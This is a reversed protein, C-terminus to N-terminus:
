ASVIPLFVKEFVIEKLQAVLNMIVKIQELAVANLDNLKKNLEDVQSQLFSKQIELNDIEKELLDKEVKLKKNEETLKEIKEADTLGPFPEEIPEPKPQPIPEPEPIPQPVPPPAPIEEAQAIDQNTLVSFLISFLALTLISKM